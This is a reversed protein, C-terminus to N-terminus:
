PILPTLASVLNRAMVNYGAANPHLGDAYYSPDHPILTLGDIVPAGWAHCVVTIADRYDQLTAGVQNVTTENVRWIPTVCIPAPRFYGVNNLFTTYATGFAVLDMHRAYDNTGLLIITRGGTSWADFADPVHATFPNPSFGDGNHGYNNVYWLGKTRAQLLSSLTIRSDGSSEGQTISDGVLVLVPGAARAPALFVTLIVIALFRTM